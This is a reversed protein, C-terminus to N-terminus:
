SFGFFQIRYYQTPVALQIGVYESVRVGAVHEGEGDDHEVGAQM